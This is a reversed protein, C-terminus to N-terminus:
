AALRPSSAGLLTSMLRAADVIRITRGETNGVAGILAAATETRAVDTDRLSVVDVICDIALGVANGRALMVIVEQPEIRRTSHELLADILYVPAHHTGLPLTGALTDGLAASTDVHTFDSLEQVQELDIGYQNAGLRFVLFDRAYGSSRQPPANKNKNM